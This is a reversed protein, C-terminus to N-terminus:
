GAEIVRHQPIDSFAKSCRGTEWNSSWISPQQLLLLTVQLHYTLIKFYGRSQSPHVSVHLAMYVIALAFLTKYAALLRDKAALEGESDRLRRLAEIESRYLDIAADQDKFKKLVFEMTNHLRELEPPVPVQIQYVRESAEKLQSIGELVQARTEEHAALVTADTTEHCAKLIATQDKLATEFVSRNEIIAELLSM